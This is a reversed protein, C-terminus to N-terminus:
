EARQCAPELPYTGSGQPLKFKPGRGADYYVLSELQKLREITTSM